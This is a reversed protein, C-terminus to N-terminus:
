CRLMKLLCCCHLHFVIEQVSQLDPRSHDPWFYLEIKGRLLVQSSEKGLAVINFFSPQQIRRCVTGFGLLNEVVFNTTWEGLFLKTAM